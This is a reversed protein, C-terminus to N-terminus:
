GACGRQIEQKLEAVRKMGSRLLRTSLDAYVLIVLASPSSAILAGFAGVLARTLEVPSIACCWHDYDAFAHATSHWDVPEASEQPDTDLSVSLFSTPTNRLGKLQLQQSLCVPCWM